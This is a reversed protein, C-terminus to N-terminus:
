KGHSVANFDKTIIVDALKKHERIIHHEILLIKELYEDQKERNRLLRATRTNNYDRDIFVRFDANKLLTTYTGEVILAQIGDVVMTETGISDANFDVLPKQISKEGTKFSLLNQDILDLRVEQSGVHGIDEVRKAANTKPPFKFYDDQQIVLTNLGYENFHHALSAAIESKGAGSEGAVTIVLKGQHSRLKEKLLEFAQLAAKKHEDLIILIDGKMAPTFHIVKCSGLNKM